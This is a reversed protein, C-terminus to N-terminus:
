VDKLKLADLLELLRGDVKSQDESEVDKKIRLEYEKEDKWQTYLHKDYVRANLDYAKVHLEGAKLAQERRKALKAKVLEYAVSFKTDHTAWDNLISPPIFNDACFGNLNISDEKQVWEILKITYEDRDYKRPRGQKITQIFEDKNM